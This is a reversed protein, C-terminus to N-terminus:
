RGFREKIRDRVGTVASRALSPTNRVTLGALRVRARWRVNTPVSPQRLVGWLERYYYVRVARPGDVGADAYFSTYSRWSSRDAHGRNYFLIEPDRVFKGRLAMEAFQLRDSGPFILLPRVAALAPRRIVAFCMQCFHRHYSAYDAFRVAPDPHEGRATEPLSRVVVGDADIMASSPVAADADPRSDLLRVLRDYLRPDCTDDAGIWAFLEGQTHEFVYTWNNLLGINREHRVYRFRPDAEVVARAIEETGDTSANDAILVDFDKYEQKRLCDLTEGLYRVGNRVPVGVSLRGSSPAGTM